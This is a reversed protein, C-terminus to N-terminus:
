FELSELDSSIKERGKTATSNKGDKHNKMPYFNCFTDPFWAAVQRCFSPALKGENNM